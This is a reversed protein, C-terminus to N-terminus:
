LSRRDLLTQRDPVNQCPCLDDFGRCSCRKAQEAKEVETLPGLDAPDVAEYTAAFIDPKCPYLEGKVGRIIWDGPSALMWGELTQIRISRGAVISIAPDRGSWSWVDHASSLTGKFEIADIEVPRKRFKM